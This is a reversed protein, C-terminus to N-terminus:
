KIPIYNIRLEIDFYTDPEMMAMIHDIVDNEDVVEEYDDTCNKCKYVFDDNYFYDDKDFVNWNDCRHCIVSIKGDGISEDPEANYTQVFERTPNGEEDFKRSYMTTYNNTGKTTILVNNIEEAKFKYGM